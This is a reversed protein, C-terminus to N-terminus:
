QKTDISITGLVVLDVGPYACIVQELQYIRALVWQNFYVHTLQENNKRFKTM